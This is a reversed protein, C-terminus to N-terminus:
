GWIARKVAESAIITLLDRLAEAVGKGAETVIRKLHPFGGHKQPAGDPTGRLAEKYLPAMYLAAFVTTVFGSQGWILPARTAVTPAILLSYDRVLATSERSEGPLVFLLPGGRTGKLTPNIDNTSSAVQSCLTGELLLRPCTPKTVVNQCHIEINVSMRHRESLLVPM